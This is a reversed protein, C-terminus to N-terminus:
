FGRAKLQETEFALPFHAFGGHSFGALVGTRTRDYGKSAGARKRVDGDHVGIKAQEAFPKGICAPSAAHCMVPKAGADAKATPATDVLVRM